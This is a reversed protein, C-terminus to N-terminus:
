RTLARSEAVVGFSVPQDVSSVARANPPSYKTAVLPESVTFLPMLQAEGNRVMLLATALLSAVITVTDLPVYLMLASITTLLASM